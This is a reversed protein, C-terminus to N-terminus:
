GRALLIKHRLLTFFLEIPNINVLHPHKSTEDGSVPKNCNPCIVKPVGVTAITMDAIFKEIAEVVITTMETDGSLDELLKDIATDAKYQAELDTSDARAVMVVPEVEVDDSVKLFAEVWHGYAMLLAMGAARDMYRAREQENANSAVLEKAQQSMRDMWNGAIREYAAMTPVRLRIAMGNRLMVRRSIDPRMQEQYNKITAVDVRGSKKNMLRMADDTLKSTSVFLMRRLNVKRRVVHGCGGQSHLCPRQLDYGQPFLTSAGALALPELDTILLLEKLAQAGSIGATNSKVKNLIFDAVNRNLYVSSASYVYGSSERGYDIKELLLKTDLKLQELAGPGELTMHMGSHWMPVSHENSLGLAHRLVQIPDKNNSNDVLGMAIKSDGLGPLNNWKSGDTFINQGVGHRLTRSYMEIVEMADRETQTMYVIVPAANPRPIEVGIYNGAAKKKALDRRKPQSAGIQQRLMGDIKMIEAQDLNSLYVTGNKALQELEAETLVETVALTETVNANPTHEGAYLPLPEPEDAATDAESESPVGVPEEAPVPEDVPIPQDPQIMPSPDELPVGQDEAGSAPLEDFHVDESAAVGYEESGTDSPLEVGEEPLEKDSM